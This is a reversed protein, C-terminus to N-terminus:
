RLKDHCEESLDMTECLNCILSNESDGIGACALHFLKLCRKCKVSRNTECEAYYLGAKSCIPCAYLKKFGLLTSRIYVEFFIMVGSHVKKWFESDNVISEIFPTGMGTWAGFYTLKNGTIGM